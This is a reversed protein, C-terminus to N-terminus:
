AVQKSSIDIIKSGKSITSRFLMDLISQHGKDDLEGSIEFLAGDALKLADTKNHADLYMIFEVGFAKSKSTGGAHAFLKKTVEIFVLGTESGKPKVMWLSDVLMQKQARSWMKQAVKKSPAFFTFSAEVSYRKITASM